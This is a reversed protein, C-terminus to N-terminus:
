TESKEERQSLYKYTADELANFMGDLFVKPYEKEDLTVIENINTSVGVMGDSYLITVEEGKFGWRRVVLGCECTLPVYVIDGVKIEDESNTVRTMRKLGNDDFVLSDFGKIRYKDNGSEAGKFVEGIEIEFKDGVNYKSM